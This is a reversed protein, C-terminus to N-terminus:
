FVRFKATRGQQVAGDEPSELFPPLSREKEIRQKLKLLFKNTLPHHEALFDHVSEDSKKLEKAESWLDERLVSTSGIALSPFAGEAVEGNGVVLLRRWLEGMAKEYTKAHPGKFGSSKKLRVTPQPSDDNLHRLLHSAAASLGSDVHRFDNLMALLSVFMDRSFFTARGRLWKAYVVDDSRSLEERMHWLDVIRQDVSQDSWEWKLNSRPFLESWLSKPEKANNIPFVLVIKQENIIKVLQRKNV